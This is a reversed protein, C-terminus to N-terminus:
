HPDDTHNSAPELPLARVRETHSKGRGRWQGPLPGGTSPVTQYHTFPQVWVPLPNFTMSMMTHRKTNVLSNHNALIEQLRRSSCHARGEPGCVEPELQWVRLITPEKVEHIDDVLRAGESSSKMFAISPHRRTDLVVLKKAVAM